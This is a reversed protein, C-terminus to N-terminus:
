AAVSERVAVYRKARHEAMFWALDDNSLKDYDHGTIQEVIKLPGPMTNKILSGKGIVEHPVIMVMRRVEDTVPDRTAVIEMPMIQDDLRRIKTSVPELTNLAIVEYVSLDDNLFPYSRQIQGSKDKVGLFFECKLRPRPHDRDGLPNMTSIRPNSADTGEPIPKRAQAIGQTVVDALNAQGKSAAEVAATVISQIDSVTMSMQPAVAKAPAKVPAEIIENAYNAEEETVDIDEGMEAALDLNKRKPM